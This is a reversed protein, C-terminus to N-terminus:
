RTRYDILDLLDQRDGRELYRARTETENFDTWREDDAPTPEYPARPADADPADPTDTPTDGPQISPGTDGTAFSDTTDSKPM